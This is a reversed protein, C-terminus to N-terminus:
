GMRQDTNDTGESTFSLANNYSTINNMFHASDNTRVIKFGAFEDPVTQTATMLTHLRELRKEHLKEDNDSLSDVDELLVSDPPLFDVKRDSCCQWM